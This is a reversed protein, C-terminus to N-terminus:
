PKCRVVGRDTFRRAAHIKAACEVIAHALGYPDKPDGYVLIEFHPDQVSIQKGPRQDIHLHLERVLRMTQHGDGVPLWPDSLESEIWPFADREELGGLQLGIAEGAAWALQWPTM